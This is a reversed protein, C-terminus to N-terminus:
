FDLNLHGKSTRPPARPASAQSRRLVKPANVNVRMLLIVLVVVPIVSAWALSNEINIELAKRSRYLIEMEMEKSDFAMSVVSTKAPSLEAIQVNEVMEGTEHTALM